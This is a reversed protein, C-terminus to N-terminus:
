LAARSSKGSQQTDEEQQKKKSRATELADEDDSDDEIQCKGSGVLYVPPEVCSQVLKWTLGFKGGAFWLGNCQILGKILSGKPILETPTGTSQFTDTEKRVPRYQCEGSMNYIEPTSACSSFFIVITLAFIFKLNNKNM